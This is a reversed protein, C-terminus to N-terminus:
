PALEKVPGLLTVCGNIDVLDTPAAAAATQPPLQAAGHPKEQWVLDDLFSRSKAGLHPVKGTQFFALTEGTVGWYHFGDSYLVGKHVDGEFYDFIFVDPVEQDPEPPPEPPNPGGQDVLRRVEARFDDPDGFNARDIKYISWEYHEVCNDPDIPTELCLAVNLLLASRRIEPGWEEGVGDNEMEIGWGQSNGSIGNWEGPGGDNATGDAIVYVTGTHRGIGWQALPGNLDPRGDHVLDLSPYDWDYGRTATHHNRVVRPNHPIPRSWDEWEPHFAVPVGWSKLRDAVRRIIDNSTSMFAEAELQRRRRVGALGKDYPRGQPYAPTSPGRGNVLEGAVAVFDRANVLRVVSTAPFGSLDGIGWNFAFDVLMDFQRQTLEVTVLRDVAEVYRAADSRFLDYIEADTLRRGSSLDDETAVDTFEASRDGAHGIGLTWVGLADRYWHDRVGEQEAIFAAGADSLSRAM